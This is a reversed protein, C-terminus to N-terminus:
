YTISIADFLLNCRRMIEHDCDRILLTDIEPMYGGQNYVTKFVSQDAMGDFVDFYMDKMCETYKTLIGTVYIKYQRGCEKRYQNLYQLHEVVTDFDDRGHIFAYMKREPANISFKISDLGADIM